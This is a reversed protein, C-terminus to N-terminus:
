LPLVGWETEKIYRRTKGRGKWQPPIYWTVIYHIQDSVLRRAELWEKCKKIHAWRGDESCVQAFLWHVKGDEDKKYMAADWAGLVDCFIPFRTRVARDMLIWGLSEMHKVYELEYYSGKRGSSMNGSQRPTQTRPIVSYGWPSAWYFPACGRATDRGAMDSIRGRSSKGVGDDM